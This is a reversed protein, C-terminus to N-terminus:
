RNAEIEKGASPFKKLGPMAAAMGAMAHFVGIIIPLYGRSYAIANKYSCKFIYINIDSTGSSNTYFDFECIKSAESINENRFPSDPLFGLRTFM